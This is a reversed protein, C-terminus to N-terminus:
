KLFQILNHKNLMVFLSIDLILNKVKFNPIAMLCLAIVASLIGFDVGKGEENVSYGVMYVSCYYVLVGQFIAEM